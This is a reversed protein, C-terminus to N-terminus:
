VPKLLEVGCIPSLLKERPVELVSLCDLLFYQSTYHLSTSKVMIVIIVILYVFLVAGHYLAM